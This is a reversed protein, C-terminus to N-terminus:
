FKYIVWATPTIKWDKLVWSVQVWFGDWLDVDAIVRGFYKEDYDSQYWWQATLSLADWIKKTIWLRLADTDIWKRFGHFYKWEISWGTKSDYGWVIVPMFEEWGPQQDIFTCEVSAWAKRKGDKFTKSRYPVFVSAKSAPYSPDKHFDDLRIFSMWLWTKKHSADVCVMLSPKDSLISAFDPVISTWVQIFWGVWIQSEKKKESKLEKMLKELEVTKEDDVTEDKDDGDWWWLKPEKEDEDWWTEWLEEPKVPTRQILTWMDFTRDDKTEVAKQQTVETVIWEDDTSILSKESCDQASWSLAYVLAGAAPLLKWRWTWKTEVRKSEIKRTKM